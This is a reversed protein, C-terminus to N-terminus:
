YVTDSPVGQVVVKEPIPVVAEVLVVRAFGLWEHPPLAHQLRARADAALKEPAAETATGGMTWQSSGSAAWRGKEDIAVAVQITMTRNLPKTM